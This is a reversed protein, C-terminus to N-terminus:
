ATEAQLEATIRILEDECEKKRRDTEKQEEKLQNTESVKKLFETKKRNIEIILDDCDEKRKGKQREQRKKLAEIREREEREERERREREARHTALAQKRRALLSLCNELQLQSRIRENKVTKVHEAEADLDIRLQSLESWEEPCDEELQAQTRQQRETRPQPGSKNHKDDPQAKGKGKSEKKAPTKADPSKANSAKGRSEKKAPPATETSIRRKSRLNMPTTAPAKKAPPATETSLRRKSIRTQKMPQNMNRPPPKM